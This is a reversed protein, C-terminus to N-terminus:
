TTMGYDHAMKVFNAYVVMFGDHRFGDTAFIDHLMLTGDLALIIGHRPFCVKSQIIM